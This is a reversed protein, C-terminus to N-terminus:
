SNDNEEAWSLMTVRSNSISYKDPAIRDLIPTGIVATCLPPFVNATEALTAFNVFITFTMRKTRMTLSNATMGVDHEACPLRSERISFSGAFRINIAGLPDVALTSMCVDLM